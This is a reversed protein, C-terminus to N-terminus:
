LSSCVVGVFGLVLALLRARLALVRARWSLTIATCESLVKETTRLGVPWLFGSLGPTFTLEGGGDTVGVQRLEYRLECSPLEKSAVEASGGVLEAGLQKESLLPEGVVVVPEKAEVSTGSSGKWM